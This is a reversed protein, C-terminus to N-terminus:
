LKPLHLVERAEEKPEDQQVPEIEATPTTLIATELPFENIFKCGYIRLKGDVVKYTYYDYSITPEEECSDLVDEGTIPRTANFRKQSDTVVDTLKHGFWCRTKFGRPMKEIPVDKRDTPKSALTFGRKSMRTKCYISQRVNDFCQEITNGSGFYYGNNYITWGVYYNAPGLCFYIKKFDSM